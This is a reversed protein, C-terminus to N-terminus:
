DKVENTKIVASLEVPIFGIIKDIKIDLCESLLEKLLKKSKEDDAGFIAKFMKDINFAYFTKTENTLVYIM